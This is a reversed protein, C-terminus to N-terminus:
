IKETIINDYSFLGIPNVRLGLVDKRFGVGIKPHYLSIWPMDDIIMDQIEKYM